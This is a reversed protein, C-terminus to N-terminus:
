RHLPTLFDRVRLREPTGNKKEINEEKEQQHDCLSITVFNFNFYIFLKKKKGVSKNGSSM